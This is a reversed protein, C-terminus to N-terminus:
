KLSSESLNSTTNKMESKKSKRKLCPKRTAGFTIQARAIFMFMTECCSSAESMSACFSSALSMLYSSTTTSPNWLDAVTLM